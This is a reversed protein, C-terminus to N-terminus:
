IDIRYGMGKFSKIKEKGLKKRLHYINVEVANSRPPDELSWLADEIAFKSVYKGTHKILLLLLDFEKATLTIPESGRKVVRDTIHVDLDGLAIQEIGQTASRRYLAEIRALLERFHFPKALYDDAGYQLGEVRDDLEGKATLMIVPTMMGEGRLRRLIEIGSIDPLMWDLVIVDFTEMQARYLGEGGDSAEEVLHGAEGLGQKLQRRINPDDEITLIKMVGNYRV